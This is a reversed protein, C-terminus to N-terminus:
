FVTAICFFLCLWMAHLMKTAVSWVGARVWLSEWGELVGVGEEGNRRPKWGMDDGVLLGWVKRGMNETFCVLASGWVLVDRESSSFSSLFDLLPFRALRANGRKKSAGSSSVSGICTDHLRWGAFKRGSHKWKFPILCWLIEDEFKIAQTAPPKKPPLLPSSFFAAFAGALSCRHQQGVESSMQASSDRARCFFRLSRLSFIKLNSQCIYERWFM